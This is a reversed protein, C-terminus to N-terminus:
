WKGELQQVLEKKLVRKWVPHRPFEKVFFIRKPVQYRALHKRCHEKLEDETVQHGEKIVVAAIIMEGWQEDPVGLVAPEEVAPNRKMVEEIEVPYVNYGGTRIRDDRRGILYMYGDEDIMGLDGTHLWGGRLVQETVHPQNWFSKVVNEGKIILEGIEGNPLEQDNEDVIRIRTGMLVKGLSNFKKKEEETANPALWAKYEEPIGSIVLGAETMAFGKNLLPYHFFELVEQWQEYSLGQGASRVMKVSDLNYSRGSKELYKKILTFLTYNIMITDIKEHEIAELYNEPTFNIIIVTAGVFAYSFLYQQLVATYMAFPLLIINDRTSSHALSTQICNTMRNRHSILAAKPEGMTGSSFCIAYGDDEDLETIPENNSSQIVLSEFDIPYGHGNGLGIIKEVYSLEARIAEINDRFRTQVIIAKPQSINMMRSLQQPSFRYNLCVAIVGIKTSAFLVELYQHCNEALVAIRDGKTMGLSLIARSIRNVRENLERWSMRHTGDVLALKNPYRHVNSILIDKLLM